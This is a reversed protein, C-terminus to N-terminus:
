DTKSIRFAKEINWLHSYSEIIENNSLKTNTIYGKLGDWCADAKYKAYDIKINIQGEIKLYKNYGRNNINSKNLKGSNVARELKQLGRKRNAEDKKARSSSYTVIIKTGDDKQISASEGNQLTLSLIQKQIERSENKIRAGLIYEYGKNQLERINENSLLGADAIIVLQQLSFDKKFAEIVPLM